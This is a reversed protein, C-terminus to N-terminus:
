LWHACYFPPGERAIVRYAADVRIRVRTVRPRTVGFGLLEIKLRVEWVVSDGGGSSRDRCRKDGVAPANLAAPCARRAIPFPHKTGEEGQEICKM